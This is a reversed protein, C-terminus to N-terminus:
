LYFIGLDLSLLSIIVFIYNMLKKNYKKETRKEDLFYKILINHLFLIFFSKLFEEAAM